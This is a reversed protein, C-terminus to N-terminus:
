SALVNRIKAALEDPSFPKYLFAVERDLIGRSAIVDATYGSIFLTKLSPYVEKLGDSLGKGNMGPMVVDTLLLHIPGSSQRALAFAEESAAAELVHYGYQKLVASTFERVAPHDEVLLITEIGRTTPGDAAVRSRVRDADIRPLYVHFSTGVGVDSQVSIWGASQRVIGYVTALGLGSGKGVEKTTFFPEFVQRRITEDMGCGTDRVTMLVYRGPSADHDIDACTGEDLEVNSTAIELTGGDPMADRANLALNMIVQHIQSPDAMTQGLSSDRHTEFTIDEGILRRLMAVSDDIIANLDVVRPEIVQKRSFALLQKTLSAARDGATAIEEAYSRLRGSSEMENLLFGTYGNIITLLNNFDHAVGGALRGVTELKQAQRFQEELKVRATEAKKRESIDRICSVMTPSGDLDFVRSHIEVPIRREDKAVVTQELVLQGLTRLQHAIAPATHRHEPPDIDSVRLTLFEERTYGLLRSAHDNADICHSSLGDKELAFVLAADSLSDFLRRYHAEAKSLAEKTHYLAEETTRQKTIDSTVSLTHRKGDLEIRESSMLGTGIDGNKRRFHGEFNTLRGDADRRKVSEALEMDDAWLGLDKATHGIAEERRYGTAHEFADNVDVLDGTEVDSLTVIAPSGRFIKTFQQESKRLAEQARKRETIDLITGALRVPQGEASLELEGKGHVWRVQGDMHRVVQYDEDFQLGDRVVPASLYAMMQERWEPHILAEWGQMSRPYAADIGVIEDLVASSTWTGAPFDLVYSGLGALREALTLRKENERLSSVQKRLREVLSLVPFTALLMIGAQLSWIALPRDPFYVPWTRGSQEMAAQVLWLLLTGVTFGLVAPGGLLWGAALIIVVTGGTAQGHIGGSLLSHFMAVTWQVSLFLYAAARQRRRKLLWLAGCASAALILLLGTVAAKRAVFLPVVLFEEFGLFILFALLLIRFDGFSQGDGLCTPPYWVRFQALKRQLAHRFRGM